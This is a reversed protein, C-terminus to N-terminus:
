SRSPYIGELAIIFSVCQFPPMNDHGQNNGSPGVASPLPAMQGDPAEKSYIPYNNGGADQALAAVAGSPNDTTGAANKFPIQLSHNHTPLQNLSLTVAESGGAEGLSRNSLGQGSGFHMPLRGQLNPLAFNTQGNGGYTTGLLSFLATNQNIDLLQGNCFAWGRPAFNGGFMKIEGLFSDM